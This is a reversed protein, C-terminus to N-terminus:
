VRRFRGRRVSQSYKGRDYVEYAFLYTGKLTAMLVRGRRAREVRGTLALPLLLAFASVYNKM